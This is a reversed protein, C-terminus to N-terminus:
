ETQIKMRMEIDISDVILDKTGSNGSGEEEGIFRKISSEVVWDEWNKKASIKADDSLDFDSCFVTKM